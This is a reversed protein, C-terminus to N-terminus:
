RSAEDAADPATAESPAALVASAETAVISSLIALWTAKTCEGDALDSGRHYDEGPRVAREMVACGMYSQTAAGERPDAYITYCHRDTWLRARFALVALATADDGHETLEHRGKFPELWRKLRKRMAGRTM